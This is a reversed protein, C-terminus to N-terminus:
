HGHLVIYSVDTNPKISITPSDADTPAIVCSPVDGQFFILRENSGFYILCVFCNEALEYIEAESGIFLIRVKRSCPTSDTVERFDNLNIDYSLM